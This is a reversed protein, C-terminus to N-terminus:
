NFNIEPIKKKFNFVMPILSTPRNTLVNVGGDLRVKVTTKYGGRSPFHNITSIVGMEGSKFKVRQGIELEGM